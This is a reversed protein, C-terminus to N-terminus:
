CTRDAKYPTRVLDQCCAYNIIHYNLDIMSNEEIKYATGYPLELVDPDVWGVMYPNQFANQIGVPRLGEDEGAATQEDLEFLLHVSSVHLALPLKEFLIPNFSNRM